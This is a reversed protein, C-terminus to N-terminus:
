DKESGPPATSRSRTSCLSNTLGSKFTPLTRQEIHSGAYDGRPRDLSARRPSLEHLLLGYRFAVEGVHEATTGSVELM